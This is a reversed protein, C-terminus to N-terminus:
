FSPEGAALYISYGDKDVAAAPAFTRGREIHRAEEPRGMWRGQVITYDAASGELVTM